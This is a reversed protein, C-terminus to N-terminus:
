AIWALVLHFVTQSFYPLGLWALPKLLLYWLPPTAAYRTWELMAPISANNVVLWSDAEDRWPEHHLALVLTAAIYAALLLFPPLDETRVKKQVSYLKEGSSLFFHSSFIQGGQM